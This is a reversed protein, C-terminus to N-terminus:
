MGLKAGSFSGSDYREEITCALGPWSPLRSNFLRNFKAWTKSERIVAYCSRPHACLVKGAHM